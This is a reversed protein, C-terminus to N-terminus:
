ASLRYTIPRSDGPMSPPTHNIEDLLLDLARALRPPDPRQLEVTIATPTYTITGALGRISTERTIAGTNTATTSTPTSTSPCGTNPTTRSCGCCWKCAAAAPILTSNKVDVRITPDALMCALDECAQALAERSDTNNSRRPSTIWAVDRPESEAAIRDRAM